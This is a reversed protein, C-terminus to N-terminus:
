GVEIEEYNNTSLNVNGVISAINNIPKHIVIVEVAYDSVEGANFYTTM